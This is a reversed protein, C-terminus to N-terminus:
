PMLLGFWFEEWFAYLKWQNKNIPIWYYIGAQPQTSEILTKAKEQEYHRISTKITQALPDQLATNLQKLFNTM